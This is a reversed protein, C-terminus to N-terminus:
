AAGGGASRRPEGVRLLRRARRLDETDLGEEFGRYLGAAHELAEEAEGGRALLLEALDLVARLELTRADQRRAVAVAQRLAGEAERSGDGGARRRLIGGRLRHLEAEYFFGRQAPASAAAEALTELAEAARGAAAQAEALLGLYYPRDMEAGMQRYVALGKQLRSVGEEPAGTVALCWGVLIEGTALRFPFEHELSLALAAEAHDRAREVELRLQFVTSAQAHAHTRTYPHDLEEALDIARLAEDVARDPRGLFWLSLAAWDHCSVGLNEQASLWRHSEPVFLEIGRRAHELAEAFRGQHFTSCALLERSELLEADGAREPAPSPAHGASRGPEPSPSPGALSLREELLAESEQYRGRLEWMTAMGYLVPSLADGDDLREALERARDYAREMAPSSWGEVATLTPALLSQLELEARLREEGEPLRPLLELARDLYDIAERHASRSLAHEAALRLYRVARRADRGEVFHIALEAARERATGGYGRELAEGVQRHLRARRAAPVREYLVQQHLEHVFGFRGSLTGDPWEETGRSRLLQGRRALDTCRGEAEEEEVGLAPAVAAAAFRSGAVAGAELLELERPDLGDLQSEIMKRLTAPVEACLSELDPSLRWGGGDRGPEERALGRAVWSDVVSEMFLPNGDTRGHLLGALGPPLQAGPFRNELYSAVEAEALLGLPLEFCRGPSRSLLDGVTRHLPHGGAGVDQLRYTGVLLLRAPDDRRALWALLDVTSYDSWHLDELVLLVPREASLAELAEVMERLMRDQTAGLVRHELAALKGPPVLAPMQVLWTPALRALLAVLERGGEGRGMRGLAELLPMYAEGTGQRDLCQGYGVWLRHRERAEAVFAGVLTSKGLGPEGTVFVTRRSGALAEELWDHLRDLEAERGVLAAAGSVPGPYSGSDEQERLGGGAPPGPPRRAVLPAGDAVLRLGDIVAGVGPHRRGPDKELCRSVVKELAGPLDPRLVRLGPPDDKLISALLDAASGGDFPRRGTAMEFILVGLAFQDSRRDGREGRVQEPALYPLTGLITGQQTLRSRSAESVEVELGPARESWALGFDLLKVRGEDDVMVNAPKLDRHVFGAEHAAALIQALPLAVALLRDLELRGVRSLLEALTEGHVREMVLFHLGEAEEISHITVIGPHDLAAVARAERRFRALRVPDDAVEPPLVKLAVTRGLRTDEAAYVTGMGGGGLLEVVRFPGLRAGVLDGGPEPNDEAGGM